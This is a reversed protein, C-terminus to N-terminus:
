RIKTTWWSTTSAPSGPRAKWNPCSRRSLRRGGHAPPRPRPVDHRRDGRARVAPRRAAPEDRRAGGDRRVHRDRVAVPGSGRRRLDHRQAPRIGGREGPGHLDHRLDGEPGPRAPARGAAGGRRRAQDGDRRAAPGAPALPSDAPGRGRRGRDRLVGRRVGRRGSRGPEGRAGPPRPAARVVPRERVGGVDRPTASVSEAPEHRGLPEIDSAAGPGTRRVVTARARVQGAPTDLVVVNPERTTLLGREFVLTGIAIVGHGCMTSYGENHMFLVGADSDPRVPRTLLAGYMDQHGRPELMLARRLHDAHRKLWARKDLM